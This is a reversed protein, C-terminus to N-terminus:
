FDSVIQAVAHAGDDNTSSDEDRWVLVRDPGTHTVMDPYQASLEAIADSYEMNRASKRGDAYKITVGSKCFTTKMNM